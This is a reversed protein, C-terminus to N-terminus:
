QNRRRVKDSLCRLRDSLVEDHAALKDLTLNAKKFFDDLTAETKEKSGSTLIEGRLKEFDAAEDRRGAGRGVDGGARRQHQLLTPEVQATVALVLPPQRQPQLPDGRLRHRGGTRRHPQMCQGLGM